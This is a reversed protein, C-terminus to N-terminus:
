PKKVLFITNGNGNNELALGLENFFKGISEKIEQDKENCNVGLYGGQQILPYWTQLLQYSDEETQDANLWVSFLSEPNFLKATEQQKDKILAVHMVVEAKVLNELTATYTNGNHGIGNYHYHETPYVPFTDVVYVKINKGSNQIRAALFTTSAGALAGLEVLTAKEPAELVLKRYYNGWYFPGYPKISNANVLGHKKCMKSVEERYNGLTDKERLVQKLRHTPTRWQLLGQQDKDVIDQIPDDLWDLVFRSGGYSRSKMDGHNEHIIKVDVYGLTAEPLNKRLIGQVYNLSTNNNKYPCLPLCEMILSIDGSGTIFLENFGKIAQWYVAQMAWCLGPQKPRGQEQAPPNEAAETGLSHREFSPDLTDVFFSYGQVIMNKKALTQKCIKTWWQPDESWIDSDMFILVKNGDQIAKKAQRNFLVEKQFLENNLDTGQTQTYHVKFKPELVTFVDQYVDTKYNPFLLEEIYVSALLDQNLWHKVANEIAIKRLPNNQGYIGLIIATPVIVTAEPPQVPIKRETKPKTPKTPKTPKKNIGPVIQASPTPPIVNVKSSGYKIIDLYAQNEHMVEQFGKYWLKLLNERLGSNLEIPKDFNTLTNLLSFIPTEQKEFSVPVGMAICALLIHYDSTHVLAAQSLVNLRIETIARQQDSIYHFPKKDLPYLEENNAALKSNIFLEQIKRQTSLPLTCLADGTLIAQLGASSAQEQSWYNSTGVALNKHVNDWQEKPAHTGVFVAQSPFRSVDHLTCCGNIFMNNELLQHHVFGSWHFDETELFKMLAYTQFLNGQHPSKYSHSILKM